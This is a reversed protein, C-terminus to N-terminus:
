GEDREKRESQASLGAAGRRSETAALVEQDSLIVVDGGSRRGRAAHHADAPSPLAVARSGPGSGCAAALDFERLLASVRRRTEDTTLM